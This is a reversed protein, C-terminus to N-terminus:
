VQAWIYAPICLWKSIAPLATRKPINSVARCQQTECKEHGNVKFSQSVVKM